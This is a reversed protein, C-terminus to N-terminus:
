SEWAQIYIGVKDRNQIFAKRVWVSEIESKRSFSIGELAELVSYLLDCLPPEYVHGGIDEKDYFQFELVMEIPGRLTEVDQKSLLERLEKEFDFGKWDRHYRITPENNKHLWLSSSEGRTSPDIPLFICISREGIVSKFKGSTVSSAWLLKLLRKKISAQGPM